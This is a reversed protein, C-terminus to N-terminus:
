KPVGHLRVIERIFRQAVESAPNMSKITIFHAVKSLRDIVVMISGHQKSTRPLGTLFDMSIVEWKWELIPIPQLLGALHKCKANVQQCDLCRAVFEVVEKKMDLWHYFKKVITLTKQYGPHGSYPKVHFERLILKKLESNDLVYVKNRFRVLGDTTLHYEEDRDGEGQQQLMHRLQQYRDDHQGGQLIRELLDTGYSSVVAIHNM